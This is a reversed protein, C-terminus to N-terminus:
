FNGRGISPPADVTLDLDDCKFGIVEFLLKQGCQKHSYNMNRIGNVPIDSFKLLEVHCVNNKNIGKFLTVKVTIENIPYTTSNHVTLSVDEFGGILPGGWKGGAQTFYVVSRWNRRLVERDRILKNEQRIAEAEEERLLKAKEAKASAEEQSITTMPQQQPVAVTTEAPILNNPVASTATAPTETRLLRYVGAACLASFAIVPVIIAAKQLGTM